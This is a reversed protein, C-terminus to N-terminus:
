IRGIAAAIQRTIELASFGEELGSLPQQGKGLSHIFNICQRACEENKGIPEQGIGSADRSIPWIPNRNWEGGQLRTIESTGGVLDIAIVGTEQIIEIERLPECMGQRIVLSIMSGNHFETRTDIQFLQGPELFSVHTRVKRAQSGTLGLVLDLDALIENFILRINDELCTTTLHHKVRIHQPHSIWPLSSRFVPRHREVHGVQVQVRAERSLKLLNEAQDVFDSVPFGLSLHRSRRIVTIAEDMGGNIMEPIWVLDSHDILSCTDDASVEAPNLWGAIRSGSDKAMGTLADSWECGTALIGVSYM